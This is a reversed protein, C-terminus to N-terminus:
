IKALVEISNVINKIDYEDLDIKTQTEYNGKLFDLFQNKFNIDNRVSLIPRESLSYDILKSPSQSSKENEINLLFDMRSLVKILEFRDILNYIEVRNGLKNIYKELVNKFFQDNKDTYIIFKFDFEIESLFSLIYEPNRIDSYFIGAYCFTPVNNVLYKDKIISEFNVGQPIIVIKNNSKLFEYYIISKKTPISIYDFYNVVWMELYKLYFHKKHMPNLYFPDGYDCISICSQNTSKIFEAVALHTYFPLGISIILDYKKDNLTLLKKRLNLYFVFSNIDTNLFYKVIKNLVKIYVNKNNVVNQGFNIKKLYINRIKFVKSNAFNLDTSLGNDQIFLDVSYMRKQLEKYLEFTRFSRPSNNPPFYYSVLLVNKSESM